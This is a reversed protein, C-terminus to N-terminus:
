GVPVGPSAPPLFGAARARAVLNAASSSTIGFAEAVAAVPKHGEALAHRYVEATRQFRAITSRRMGPTPIPETLAETMAARDTAIHAPIGLLRVLSATVPQGDGPEWDEAILDRFTDGSALRLGICEPRGDIVRWRLELLWPGAQRDPWLHVTPSLDDGESWAEEVPVRYTGVTRTPM